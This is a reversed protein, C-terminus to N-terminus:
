KLATPSVDCGASKWEGSPDADVHWQYTGSEAHMAANGVFRNCDVAAGGPPGEESGESVGGGSPGGEEPIGLPRAEGTAAGGGRDAPAASGASAAAAPVVAVPIATATASAGSSVSAPGATASEVSAAAPLQLTASAATAATEMPVAASAASAATPPPQPKEPGAALTAAPAQIADSPMHAIVYEPYLKALRSHVERLAPLDAAALQRLVEPKLGWTRPM